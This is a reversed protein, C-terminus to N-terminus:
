AGALLGHSIIPVSATIQVQPHLGFFFLLIGWTQLDM